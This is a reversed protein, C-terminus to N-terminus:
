AVAGFRALHPALFRLAYNLAYGESLNPPDSDPMANRGVGQPCPIPKNIHASTSKKQGCFLVM